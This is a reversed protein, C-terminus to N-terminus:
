ATRQGRGSRLALGATALLALALVAAGGVGADAWDFGDGAGVVLVPRRYPESIGLDVARGQEQAIIRDITSPEARNGSQVPSPESLRLDIARGREQAVIRDISSPEQREAAVTEETVFREARPMPDAQAASAAIATTFVVLTVVLSKKM